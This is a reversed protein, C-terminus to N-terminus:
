AAGWIVWGIGVGVGIQIAALLAFLLLGPIPNLEDPEDDFLDVAWDAAFDAPPKLDTLGFNHDRM